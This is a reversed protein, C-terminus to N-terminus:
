SPKMKRVLKLAWDRLKYLFMSILGKYVLILVVLTIIGAGINSGELNYCSWEWIWWYTGIFVAVGLLTISTANIFSLVFTKRGTMNAYSKSYRRINLLLFVLFVGLLAVTMMLKMKHNNLVTDFSDRLVNEAAEYVTGLQSSERIDKFAKYVPIKDYAEKSGHPVVLTIKMKISDPIDNFDYPAAITSLTYTNHNTKFYGYHIPDAFSLHIEKVKEWDLAGKAMKFVRLYYSVNSKGGGRVSDIVNTLYLVGDKPFDLIEIISYDSITLLTGHYKYGPMKRIYASQPFQIHKLQKCNKFVWNDVITMNEPLLITDARCGLFAGDAITTVNKLARLDLTGRRQPLSLGTILTDGQIEVESLSFPKSFVVKCEDDFSNPDIHKVSKPIVISKLGKYKLTGEITELSDPLILKSFLMSAEDADINICKLKNFHSIDLIGPRNCPLYKLALSYQDSYNNDVVIKNTSINNLNCVRYGQYIINSSNLNKPFSVYKAYDYEIINSAHVLRNNHLNWLNGDHVIYGDKNNFEYVLNHNEGYIELNSAGNGIHVICFGINKDIDLKLNRLSDQIYIDRLLPCGSITVKGDSTKNRNTDSITLLKLKDCNKVYYNEHSYYAKDNILLVINDQMLSDAEGKITDCMYLSASKSVYPNIAQSLTFEKSKIPSNYDIIYLGFSIVSALFILIPVLVKLSQKRRSKRQLVVAEALRDHLFEVYEEDGIRIVNLLRVDNGKRGPEKGTLRDFDHKKIHKRVKALKVSQREGNEQLYNEIYNRAGISIEKCCIDYYEGIIRKGWDKGINGEKDPQGNNNEYLMGCLLSLLYTQVRGNKSSIEIIRKRLEENHIGVGCNFIEEVSEPKLSRLRFRNAKLAVFDDNDIADELLYLYDERISIVFRYDAQWVSSSLDSVLNNIERLLERGEEYNSSIYEEFQDLVVVPTVPRGDKFFRNLRFFDSLTEVKRIQEDPNDSSRLKVECHKSIEDIIIQTANVKENSAQKDAKEKMFRCIVPCYGMHRLVPFVGAQLLSTKGIGSKGYLTVCLNNDILSILETAEDKRGVFEYRLSEVDEETYPSLLKWPNQMTNDKDSREKM